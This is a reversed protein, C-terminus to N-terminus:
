NANQTPNMRARLKRLFKKPRRLAALGTIFADGPLRVGYKRRACKITQAVARIKRGPSLHSNWVLKLQENRMERFLDELSMNHRESPRPGEVTELARKKWADDAVEDPRIVRRYFFTDSLKAFGGQLSLEALLLVDAGWVHRLGGPPLAQRRILGHFMNCSELNWILYLYREIDSGAPMVFHEDASGSEKGTADIVRARPYVLVLEPDSEMAAVARSVFSPSWLDHAGAWMFYRAGALEFVRDFNVFAGQNIDSRHYKVRLDSAAFQRCIDETGDSSANDSIILELDEFDQALLSEITERIFGQENYVPLGISVLPKTISVAQM